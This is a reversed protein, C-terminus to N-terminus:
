ENIFLDYGGDVKKYQMYTTNSGFYINENLWISKSDLSLTNQQVNIAETRQNDLLFGLTIGNKTFSQYSKETGMNKDEQIEKFSFFAESNNNGLELYSTDSNNLIVGSGYFLVKNNEIKIFHNDEVQFGNARISFIEKETSNYGEKFVIGKSTDYIALEASETTTGGHIRAAYIDAGQIVSDSIISDKFIGKGAYISGKESVQFPAEQIDSNSSSASGAWFVIRSQDNTGFKNATAEGITNVGAFSETGVKTTLSGNLFVNDAYLGIGTINRDSTAGELQGLVLRKNYKLAGNQQEEFDSITFANGAAFERPDNLRTKEGLASLIFGPNNSERTQGFKTIILGDSEEYVKNLQLVTNQEDETLIVSEVKYVSDGSYIWDGLELNTLGSVTIISGAINNISWSDKFLMLSGVAQVSSAELITDMLHVNDAYIDEFTATGNGFITWKKTGIYGPDNDTGDGGWCEIQGIKFTGDTRLTIQEAKIFENDHLNPNYIYASNNSGFKIYDEVIAGTGLSLNQIFVNGTTGELVVNPTDQGDDDSFGAESYLKNEAIIFGGIKGSEAVVEGSFSGSAGELKGRFYGANANITGTIILDGSTSKLLENGSNDIIKFGGNQITLGDASFALKTNQIAAVIDSANVSLQAMDKKMGYRVNIYNELHYNNGEVLLDYTAKLICEKNMLINLAVVEVNLDHLDINFSHQEEDFLILARDIEYSNGSEIDIVNLAFKYPSLDTIYEYPPSSNPDTVERYIMFQLNEPSFSTSGNKNIFKLVETQNGELHYQSSSEGNLGNEGKIKVWSYDNFNLSPQPNSSTYTGMWSSPTSGFTESNVASPRFTKNEFAEKFDEFTDYGAISIGMYYANDPVIITTPSLANEKNLFNKEENFWSIFYSYQKQEYVTLYISEGPQVQPIKKQSLWASSTGYTPALVTGGTIAGSTWDNINVSSLNDGFILGDDSYKIHVYNSQGPQGDSGKILSWTYDKPNNSEINSIKNYAIGMYSMGDPNDSIDASTQPNAMNSYKIWTYYSASQGDNINILGISGTYVAM